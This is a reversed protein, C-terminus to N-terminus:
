LKHAARLHVKEKIIGLFGAAIYGSFIVTPVVQPIWAFIVVTGSLISAYFPSRFKRDAFDMSNPFRIKSVMLLSLIVIIIPLLDIIKGADFIGTLYGNLIVLAAVMGGAGTTALGTYHRHVDEDAQMVNFRALRYVAAVIFLFGLAWGLLPYNKSLVGGVLLAPAIGFTALDCFSDLECGLRSTANLYRALKGDYADFLMAVIIFWPAIDFRSNVVAVIAGFGCGLNAFTCLSPAAMKFMSLAKRM